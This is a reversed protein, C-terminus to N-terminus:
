PNNDLNEIRERIVTDPLTEIESKDYISIIYINGKMVKIHTIVRAGGSKGKGKSKISLRIKFCNNGIPTGSKPDESLLVVLAGVDEKISVYKKALKKLEKQFAPTAIIKFSM